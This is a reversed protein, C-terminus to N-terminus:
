EDDATRKCAMLPGNDTTHTLGDCRWEWDGFRDPQLRLAGGCNPDTCLIPVYQGSRSRPRAAATTNDSPM